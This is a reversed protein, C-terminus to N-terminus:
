DEELEGLYKAIGLELLQQMAFVHEHTTFPHTPVFRFAALGHDVEDNVSVYYGKADADAQVQEVLANHLLMHNQEPTAKDWVINMAAAKKQAREIIERRVLNLNLEPRLGVLLTNLEPQHLPRLYPSTIINSYLTETLDLTHDLITRIGDENLLRKTAWTALVGGTGM